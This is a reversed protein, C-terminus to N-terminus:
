APIELKLHELGYKKITAETLKEWHYNQKGGTCNRGIVNGHIDHVLTAVRVQHGHKKTHRTDGQRRPKPKPKHYTIVIM